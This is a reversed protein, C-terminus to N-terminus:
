KIAVDRDIVNCMCRFFYKHFISFNSIIVKTVNQSRISLSSVPIQPRPYVNLNKFLNSPIQFISNPLHFKSSPIQFISNSPPSKHFSIGSYKLPNRYVFGRPSKPVCIGLFYANQVLCFFIPQFGLIAPM